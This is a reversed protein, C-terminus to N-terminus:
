LLFREGQKVVPAVAKNTAAASEIPATATTTTTTTAQTPFVEGFARAQVTNAAQEAARRRCEAEREADEKAKAEAALRANEADRESLKTRAQFHM